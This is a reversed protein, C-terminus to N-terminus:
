FARKKLSEIAGRIFLEPNNSDIKYNYKWLIVGTKVDIKKISLDLFGDGELSTQLKASILHSVNLLNGLELDNRSIGEQSLRHEELISTLKSRELVNLQKQILLSELQNYITDSLNKYEQPAEVPLIAYNTDFRSSNANQLNDITKTFLAQKIDNSIDKEFSQIIIKIPYKHSYFTSQSYSPIDFVDVFIGAPITLWSSIALEDINYHYTKIIKGTNKQTVEFKVIADFREIAPFILLSFISLISSLLSLDENKPELHLSYNIIFNSDPKIEICCNNEFYQTLEDPVYSKYHAELINKELNEHKLYNLSFAVKSNLYEPKNLTSFTEGNMKFRHFTCSIHLIILCFSILFKM